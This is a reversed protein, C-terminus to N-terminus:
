ILEEVRAVTFLAGRSGVNLKRYINHLHLKVTGETLALLAGIRKNGHGRLVTAVVERERHTLLAMGGPRAAAARPLFQPPITRQGRMAQVVAELLERESRDKIVIADVGLRAAEILPAPSTAATHLVIKSALREKRAVRLLSLGSYQPLVLDLVAVTPRFQRLAHLAAAGDSCSAVVNLGHAAMAGELARRMLPHDDALLVTDPM